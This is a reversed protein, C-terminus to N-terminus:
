WKSREKDLIEKNEFINGLVTLYKHAGRANSAITFSSLEVHRNQEYDYQQGYTTVGDILCLWFSGHQFEIIFVGPDCVSQNESDIIRVIDGEYIEKGKKDKLGTYQMVDKESIPEGLNVIGWFQKNGEELKDSYVMERHYYDWARFKTQRM